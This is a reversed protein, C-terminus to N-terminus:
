RSNGKVPKLNGLAEDRTRGEGRFPQGAIVLTVVAQKTAQQKTADMETGKAM